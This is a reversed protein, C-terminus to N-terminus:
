WANPGEMPNIEIVLARAKDPDKPLKVLAESGKARVVLHTSVPPGPAGALQFRGRSDTRTERGVSPLAVTADALAIGGPGRVVGAIMSPQVSELRLPHLVPPAVPQVRARRVTVRVVFSPKAVTKLATWTEALLPQPEIELDTQEMAAYALDVLFRNAAASEEAWTTVLYRLWLQLPPRTAGRSVLQPSIDLLYVSAGHGERRESPPEM